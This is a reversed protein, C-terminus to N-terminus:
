HLTVDFKEIKLVIIAITQPTGFKLIKVTDEMHIDLETYNFHILPVYHSHSTFPSTIKGHKSIAWRFVSKM